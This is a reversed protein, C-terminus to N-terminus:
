GFLGALQSYLNTLVNAGLIRIAGAVALAIGAAMVSYEIATAGHEERLFRQPPSIRESGDIIREM